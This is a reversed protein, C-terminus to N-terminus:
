PRFGPQAAAEPQCTDPPCSDPQCTDPPAGVAVITLAGALRGRREAQLLPLLGLGLGLLACLAASLDDLGLGQALAGAAVLALVPALYALGAAALFDAGSLAVEVIDGPALVLGPPAPLRLREARALGALAAAGCGQRAACAACGSARRAELEVAGASVSIVQLYEALVRPAVGAGGTGAEAM